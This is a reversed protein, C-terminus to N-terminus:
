GSLEARSDRLSRQQLSEFPADPCVPHHAVRHRPLLGAILRCFAIFVSMSTDFRMSHAVADTSRAAEPPRKPRPRPRSPPSRRTALPPQSAPPPIWGVTNFLVTATVTPPVKRLTGELAGDRLLREFPEAFVDV